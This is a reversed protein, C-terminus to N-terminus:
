FILVIKDGTLMWIKIGADKLLKITDDAQDQLKDEIASCGVYTMNIEIDEFVSTLKTGKDIQDLNMDNLIENYKSIWEKFLRENLQRKAMILTRYGQRAFKDNIEKAHSLNYSVDIKPFVVDDAGKCYLIINGENSKVIITM